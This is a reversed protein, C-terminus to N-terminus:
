YDKISKILDKVKKIDKIGPSKELKSSADIGYPYINELLEPIWESSIGGAIWTPVKFNKGTILGMKIKTGTGGLQNSSWADFLFCDVVNEYINISSLDKDSNIRFAKWLQIDPFKKRINQCREISENGHLQIISPPYKVSISDELDEDNMNAVVLVKKTKPYSISLEKFINNRKETLLFRPSSKVAIVGIAFVGLSAIELAQNTKTIGCIKLKISSKDM